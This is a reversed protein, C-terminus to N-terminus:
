VTGVVEGEDISKAAIRRANSLLCFCSKAVGISEFRFSLVDERGDEVAADHSKRLKTKFM